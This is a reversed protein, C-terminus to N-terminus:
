DFNYTLGIGYTVPQQAFFSRGGAFNTFAYTSDDENTINKGFLAAEWIGDNSAVSIRAGLSKIRGYGALPDALASVQNDTWSYDLQATLGLESTLGVRYRVLANYAWEPAQPLEEGEPVPAFLEAGHLSTPAETIKSNIYSVGAKIDLGALPRWWLDLEVGDMESKPVTGLAATLGSDVLLSQRDDYDYHYIAGNLQLTNNLLTSKFGLEYVLVEEAPNYEYYAPNLVATAYFVGARYGTSVSGYFLWDNNPTYDLAIKGSVNEDDVSHKQTPIGLPFTISLDDADHGIIDVEFDKDDYSYRLGATLKWEDSLQTETHAFLGVSLNEQDIPTSAAIGLVDGVNILQTGVIEEKSVNVGLIWNFTESDVSTLRLEQSLQSAENNHIYDNLRLITGDYNDEAQRDYTDYATVSTLSVTELDYNITVAGGFGEEDREPKFTGNPSRVDGTFDFTGQPTGALADVGTAFPVESTSRDRGGHINFLVDLEDSPQYALLGRFSLRDEKGYEEGTYRDVQWGEGQKVTSVAFRGNLNESLLGSIFGDLQTRDFRSYDASIQAEFDDSPKKSVFTIAGGTTNKGYLTGQPGKLVEVREVDMMQFNLYLPSSAFVEDIYVGVGSSNNANFDDLGVGRISFIPIGGSQANTTSLGPTQAALEKPTSLGLNKVDDGSFASIAVSIDQASQARKQATVMIEELILDDQAMTIASQTVAVALTSITFVSKFHM